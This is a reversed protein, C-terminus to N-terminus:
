TTIIGAVCLRREIVSQNKGCIACNGDQETFMANYQELSVGYERQMKRAHQKMNINERNKTWYEKTYAM